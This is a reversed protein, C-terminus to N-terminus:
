IRCTTCPTAGMQKPPRRIAHVHLTKVRLLLGGRDHKNVFMLRANLICGQLVPGLGYAASITLRQMKVSRDFIGAISVKTILHTMRGM